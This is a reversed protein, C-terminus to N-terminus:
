PSLVKRVRAIIAAPELGVDVALAEVPNELADFQSRLMAEGMFHGSRSRLRERILEYSGKLHVFRAPGPDPALVRRYSDRLASCAVVVRAGGSLSSDIAAKVAALWPARDEDTLPTGATMKAVNAPSHLTDAEVFDWGLEKALAEGVTSKGCGAVGMVVIVSLPPVEWSRTSGLPRGADLDFLECLTEPRTGSLGYKDFNVQLVESRDDRWGLKSMFRNWITCDEDNHPTGLGEAWLLIEEDCGGELTRRRIDEYPVGLFRCCRSDFQFPKNTGLTHTYDEPLAGRAHLRIKDLMRGFVIVRGVKAHASRLGIVRPM